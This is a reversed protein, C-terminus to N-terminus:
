ANPIEKQELHFGPSWSTTTEEYHTYGLSKLEELLAFLTRHQFLLLHTIGDQDTVIVRSKWMPLLSPLLQNDNWITAIKKKM